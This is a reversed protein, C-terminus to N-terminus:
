SLQSLFQKVNNYDKFILALIVILTIIAQNLAFTKNYYSTIIIVILSSILFTVRFIIDPVFRGNILRISNDIPVSIHKIRLGEETIIYRNNPLQEMIGAIVLKEFHWAVTSSSKIELKRQTDRIGVESKQSLCYSFIKLTTPNSLIESPSKAIENQHIEIPNTTLDM